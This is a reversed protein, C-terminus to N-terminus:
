MHALLYLSLLYPLEQGNKLLSRGSVMVQLTISIFEQLSQFIIFSVRRKILYSIPVHIAYVVLSIVWLSYTRFQELNHWIKLLWKESPTVESIIPRDGHFLKFIFSPVDWNTTLSFYPYLTGCFIIFKACHFCVCFQPMKQDNKLLWRGSLTVESITPTDDYFLM